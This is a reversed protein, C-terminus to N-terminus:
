GTRGVVRRRTLPAPSHRLHRERGRDPDIQHRILRSGARAREEAPAFEHAHPDNPRADGNVLAGLELAPADFAYGARIADVQADDLPAAAAALRQAAAAAVQADQARTVAAEADTQAKKSAALALEAQAKLEAVPDVSDSPTM